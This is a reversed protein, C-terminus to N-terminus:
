PLMGSEPVLIQKLCLELLSVSGTTTIYNYILLNIPKQLLLALYALSSDMPCTILLAPPLKSAHVRQERHM